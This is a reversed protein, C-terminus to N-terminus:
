LSGASAIPLDLAPTAALGLGAAIESAPGPCFRESSGSSVLIMGLEAATAGAKHLCDRAALLGIGAVTDSEAAYRREEIGTMELIWEPTAEVLAAVARNSVRRAPLWSGFGRLFAM